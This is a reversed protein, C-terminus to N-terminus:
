FIHQKSPNGTESKAFANKFGRTFTLATLFLTMNAMYANYRTYQM